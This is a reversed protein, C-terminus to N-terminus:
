LQDNLSLYKRPQDLCWWRKLRMTNLRTERFNERLFLVKRTKVSILSPRMKCNQLKFNKKPIQGSYVGSSIDITIHVRGWFFGVVFCFFFLM